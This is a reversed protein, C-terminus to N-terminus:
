ENQIDGKLAKYRDWFQRYFPEASSDDTQSLYTLRRKWTEFDPYIKHFFGMKAYPFVFDAFESGNWSLLNFLTKFLVQNKCEPCKAMYKNNPTIVFQFYKHITLCFPCILLKESTIQLVSESYKRPNPSIGLGDLITQEKDYRATEERKYKSVAEFVGIIM